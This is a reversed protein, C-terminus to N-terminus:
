SIILYSVCVLRREGVCKWVEIPIDWARGVKPNENRIPNKSDLYEVAIFFIELHIDM